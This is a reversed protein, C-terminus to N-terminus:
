FVAGVENGLWMQVIHKRLKSGVPRMVDEAAARSFAQRIRHRAPEVDQLDPSESFRCIERFTFRDSPDDDYIWELHFVCKARRLEYDEAQRHTTWNRAFDLVMNIRQLALEVLSQWLFEEPRDIPQRVLLAPTETDIDADIDAFLTTEAM